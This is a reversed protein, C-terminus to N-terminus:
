LLFQAQRQDGHRVMGRTHDPPPQVQPPARAQNHPWGRAWQVDGGQAGTRSGKGLVRACAGGAHPGTSVWPARQVRHTSQLHWRKQTQATLRQSGQWGLLWTQGEKPRGESGPCPCQAGLSTSQPAEDGVRPAPPQPTSGSTVGLEQPLHRWWCCCCFEAKGLTLSQPSMSRHAFPSQLEEAGTKPPGRPDLTLM